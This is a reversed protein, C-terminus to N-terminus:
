KKAKSKAKPAEKHAEAPTAKAVAAPQTKMATREQYAPLSAAFAM